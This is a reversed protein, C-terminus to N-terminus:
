STILVATSCSRGHCPPHPRSTFHGANPMREGRMAAMATSVDRASRYPLGSHIGVAEYLDPYIAGMAAAMAGGASLGAVFAGKGPLYEALLARTMEAIIHPEGTDRLQDEPRFWNWCGSPNATRPQTPYAVLVGEAEAVLNMATGVAFDEANQKCGHLMVLLGRPTSSSPVFLRYDRSGAHTSITRKLFACGEPLSPTRTPRLPQLDAGSRLRALTEGLGMRAAAVSSPSALQPAGSPTSAGGENPAKSLADQLLRTAKTPDSARVAALARRMAPGLRDYM